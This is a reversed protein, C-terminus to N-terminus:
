DSLAIFEVRSKVCVLNDVQLRFYYRNNEHVHSYRIETIEKIKESPDFLQIQNNKVGWLRGRLKAEMQDYDFYTIFFTEAGPPPFRQIQSIQKLFQTRSSKVQLENCFNCVTLWFSEMQTMSDVIVDLAKLNDNLQTTVEQHNADISFFYM